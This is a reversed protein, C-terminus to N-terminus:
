FINQKYIPKLEFFDRIKLNTKISEAINKATNSSNLYNAITNEVDAINVVNNKSNKLYLHYFRFFLKAHKYNGGMFLAKINSYLQTFHGKNSDNIRINSIIREYFEFLMPISSETDIREKEDKFSATNFKNLLNKTIEFLFKLSTGLSLNSFNKQDFKNILILKKSLQQFDIDEELSTNIHEIINTILKVSGFRGRLAQNNSIKELVYEDAFYSNSMVTKVGVIDTDDFMKTKNSDLLIELMDKVFSEMLPNNKDQM